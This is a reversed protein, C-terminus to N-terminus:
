GERLAAVVTEGSGAWRDSVPKALWLGIAM